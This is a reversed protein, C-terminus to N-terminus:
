KMCNISNSFTNPQGFLENPIKLVWILNKDLDINFFFYIYIYIYIYIHIHISYTNYFYALCGELISQM